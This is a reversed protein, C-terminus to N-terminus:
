LNGGAGHGLGRRAHRCLTSLFMEPDLSFEFHRAAPGMRFRRSRTQSSTLRQARTAGNVSVIDAALGHGYGGLRGASDTVGGQDPALNIWGFGVSWIYGSLATDTVAVNGGTPAWNVYGGNDDWAYPNIADVAGTSALVTTTGLVLSFFAVVFATALSRRFRPRIDM